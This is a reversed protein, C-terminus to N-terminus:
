WHDMCTRMHKWYNSDAKKGGYIARKIVANGQYELPFESGCIIYHKEPAQLFDSKVDTSAIDLGDLAAYTFAIRVPERSVLGANNSDSQDPSFHGDEVWRLKRTFDMKVDFILHGSSKSYGPSPKNDEAFDFGPMITDMELDIADQWFTKGNDEDFAIAEKTTRPM